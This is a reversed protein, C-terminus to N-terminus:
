LSIEKSEGNSGEIVVVETGGGDSLGSLLLVHIGPYRESQIHVQLVNRRTEWIILFSACFLYPQGLHGM